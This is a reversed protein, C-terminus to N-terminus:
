QVYLLEGTRGDFPQGDGVQISAIWIGKSNRILSLLKIEQTKGFVSGAKALQTKGAVSFVATLDKGTGYVRVLKLAYTTSVPTGSTTSTGTSTTGGSTGTSTSGTSTSGTSTGTTGSTSGAPAAAPVIYLAHFPDRGLKVSSAAPVLAVAKTPKRAPRSVAKLIPKKAHHVVPALAVDDSSGGSGGLLFWGGAALAVAAVGGILALKRRDTTGEIEAAAPTEEPTQTM